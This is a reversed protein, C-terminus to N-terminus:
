RHFTSVNYRHKPHCGQFFDDGPHPIIVNRGVELSPKEATNTQCGLVYILFTIIYLYRFIYKKSVQMTVLNDHASIPRKVNEILRYNYIGLAKSKLDFIEKGENEISFSIILAYFALFTSTIFHPIDRTKIIIM